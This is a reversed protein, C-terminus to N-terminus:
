SSIAGVTDDDLGFVQVSRSGTLDFQELEAKPLSHFFELLFLNFTLKHKLELGATTIWSIKPNDLLREYEGTEIINVREELTSIFEKSVSEVYEKDTWEYPRLERVLEKLFELGYVQLVYKVHEPRRVLYLQRGGARMHVVDEEFAAARMFLEVPNRRLAPLVGLVPVGPLTPALALRQNM